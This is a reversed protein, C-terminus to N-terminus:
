SPMILKSRAFKDSKKGISKTVINIETAMRPRKIKTIPIDDVFVFINKM